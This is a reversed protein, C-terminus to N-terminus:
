DDPNWSSAAPESGPLRDVLTDLTVWLVPAFKIM